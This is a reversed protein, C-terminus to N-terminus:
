LQVKKKIIILFLTTLYISYAIYSYCETKGPACMPCCQEDIEYEAHACRCFCLEYNLSIIITLITSRLTFMTLTYIWTQETLTHVSCVRRMDNSNNQACDESAELATINTAHDSIHWLCYVTQLCTTSVQSVFRSYNLVRWSESGACTTNGCSRSSM